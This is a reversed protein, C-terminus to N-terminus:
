GLIIKLLTNKLNIEFTKSSYKLIVRQKANKALASALKTDLLLKRLQFSLEEPTNNTLILGSKGHNIIDPIAGERTSIVACEHYMAELISIPFCENYFSTPLVFVKAKALAENKENNYKPGHYVVIDDLGNKKYYELWKKKFGKNNHWKGIFDLKFDIGQDKLIKAAKLLILSGKSEQMNSLYIIRNHEKKLNNAETQDIEIGNPVFYVHEKACLDDIDKYLTKSLHIVYTNKFVFAYLTKLSISKAKREKIGKGHLHFCIKSSKLKLIIALLADKIFAKGHPSLTIYILDYKKTFAKHFVIIYIKITKLLKQVRFKGINTTDSATTLNVFDAVFNDKIVKSRKITQNMISAGHVPPPLQM